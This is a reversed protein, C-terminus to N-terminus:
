SSSDPRRRPSAPLRPPNPANVSTILWSTRRRRAFYKPAKASRKNRLSHARRPRLASSAIFDGRILIIVRCLPRITVALLHEGPCGSPPGDYSRRCIPACWTAAITCDRTAGESLEGNLQEKWKMMNAKRGYKEILKAVRYRGKRACKTCEVNLVDLKGEIDGFILYSRPM